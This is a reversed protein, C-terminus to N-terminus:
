HGEKNPSSNNSKSNFSFTSIELTELVNKQQQQRIMPPFNQDSSSGFQNNLNLFTIFVVKDSEISTNKAYIETILKRYFLKEKIKPKM